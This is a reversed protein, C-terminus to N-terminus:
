KDLVVGIDSIGDLPDKRMLQVMRITYKGKVPFRIEKQFPMTQTCLSGSAKGYPTGDKKFLPIEFRVAKKENLYETFITLWLNSFEYDKQHRVSVSLSYIASTDDILIDFQTTDSSKWGKVDVTKFENYFHKQECATFVFVLIFIFYLSQKKM